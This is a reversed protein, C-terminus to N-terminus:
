PPPQPTFGGGGGGGQGTAGRAESSFAARLVQALRMADANKLYVVYINSGGAGGAGPQDLKEILVRVQNIRANNSARVLLSNTRSDPLVTLSGGGAGGPVGPAGPAGSQDSLRQIVPALDPAVAHKLPIVEVDTSAPVDIAAIMKALRQLNEAYDTIVLTNNGPNANITNNPSILPRLVTVLNNASEHQLRFIQTIIQDGSRSVPGVSVTGTQLKADAEPVVKLLGGAEVVTFGLGRLSTLFNLYAERPTLAQESYLTIQGKVRPDVVIQRDLIAGIARAVGEIEANVFNLTVPEKKSGTGPVQGTVTGPLSTLLLALASATALARTGRIRAAPVRPTAAPRDPPLSMSM